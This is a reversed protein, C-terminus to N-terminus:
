FNLKFSYYTSPGSNIKIVPKTNDTVATAVSTQGSRSPYHEDRKTFMSELGLIYELIYFTCDVPDHFFFGAHELKGARQRGM